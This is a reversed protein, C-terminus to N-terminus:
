FDHNTQNVNRYSDYTVIEDLDSNEVGCNGCRYKIPRHRSYVIPKANEGFVLPNPTRTVEEKVQEELINSSNCNICHYKAFITEFFCQVRKVKSNKVRATETFNQTQQATDELPQHSSCGCSTQNM